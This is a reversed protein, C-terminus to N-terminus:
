LAQYKIGARVEEAESSRLYIPLLEHWSLYKKSADSRATLLGLTRATPHDSCNDLRLIKEKISHSFYKKYADYGDGVVLAM